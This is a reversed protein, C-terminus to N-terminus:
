RVGFRDPLPRTPPAKPATLPLQEYDLSYSILDPILRSDDLTM